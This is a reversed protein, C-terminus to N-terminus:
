HEYIYIYINNKGDYYKNKLKIETIKSEVINRTTSNMYIFLYIYICTYIRTHCNLLIYHCM